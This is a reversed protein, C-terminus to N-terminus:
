VEERQCFGEEDGKGTREAPVECSEGRKPGDQAPADAEQPSASAAVWRRWANLGYRPRLPIAGEGSDEEVSPSAPAPSGEEVAQRKVGKM